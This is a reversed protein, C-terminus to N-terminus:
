HWKLLNENKPKEGVTSLLLCPFSPKGVSGLSFTVFIVKLGSWNSWFKVQAYVSSKGARFM